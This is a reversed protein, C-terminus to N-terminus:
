SIRVVAPREAAELDSAMPGDARAAELADALELWGHFRREVGPAVSLWGRIPVGDREVDLIVRM